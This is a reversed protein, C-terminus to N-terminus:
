KRPCLVITPPERHIWEKGASLWRNMPRNDSYPEIFVIRECTTNLLLKVCHICPSTTCYATWITDVDPCQLLANAEAHTAECEDLAAGSTAGAARCPSDICHPMGRPVGNYGTSLVHFRHDVLVCGVSRRPCTYRLSAVVAQYLFYDDRTPRNMSGTLFNM